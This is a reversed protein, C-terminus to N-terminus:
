GGLVGAKNRNLMNWNNNKYINVFEIEKKQAEEAPMYETLELYIPELGTKLKYLEVADNKDQKRIRERIIPNKTLGVYAHNDPFEFVYILRPSDLSKPREMHLCIENLWGNKYASSFCNPNNYYFESSSKYKLAEIKCSELSHIIRGNMHKTIENLWNNRYCTIYLNRENNLFEIKTNYKLAIKEAEEFSYTTKGEWKMHSCIDDLFNNKWAYKYSSCNNIQFEKRTKYKLAEIKCLDYNWYIKNIEMHSCIDNLFKNKRAFDYCNLDNIQFEKRTKYQKSFLHCIEKNWKRKTFKLISLNNEIKGDKILTWFVNKIILNDNIFKIDYFYNDNQKEIKFILNQKNLFLKGINYNM